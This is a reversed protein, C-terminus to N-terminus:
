IFLLWETLIRIYGLRERNMVPKSSMKTRQKQSNPLPLKENEGEKITNLSKDTDVALELTSSSISWHSDHVKLPVSNQPTHPCHSSVLFILNNAGIQLSPHIFLLLKGIHCSLHAWVEIDMDRVEFPPWSIGRQKVYKENKLTQNTLEQSTRTCM